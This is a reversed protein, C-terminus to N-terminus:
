KIIGTSILHDNTILRDNRAIVPRRALSSTVVTSSPIANVIEGAELFFPTLEPAIAVTYESKKLLNGLWNGDAPVPTPLRAASKSAKRRCVVASNTDKSRSTFPTLDRQRRPPRTTTCPLPTRGADRCAPGPGCYGRHEPRFLESDAYCRHVTLVATGNAVGDHRRCRDAALSSRRHRRSAQAAIIVAGVYLLSRASDFSPGLWQWGTLSATLLPPRAASQLEASVQDWAAAARFGAVFGSGASGDTDPQSRPLM